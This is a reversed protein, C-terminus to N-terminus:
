ASLKVKDLLKLQVNPNSALFHTQEKSEGNTRLQHVKSRIKFGRLLSNKTSNNETVCNYRKIQRKQYIWHTPWPFIPTCLERLEKFRQSAQLPGTVNKHMYKTWVWHAHLQYEDGNCETSMVLQMRLIPTSLTKVPTQRDTPCRMEMGYYNWQKWTRKLPFLPVMEMGYYKQQDWTREQSTGWSLTNGQWPSSPIGRLWSQPVWERLLSSISRDTHM